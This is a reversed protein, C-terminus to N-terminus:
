IIENQVDHSAFKNQKLKMWDTLQPIDKAHFKLTEIFNADDGTNDGHLALQQRALFQLTEVTKVSCWCNSKMQSTTSKNQMEIVDACQPVIVEYTM